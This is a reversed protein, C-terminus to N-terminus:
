RLESELTIKFPVLRGIDDFILGHRDDKSTFYLDASEIEPTFIAFFQMLDAVGFRFNKEDSTLSYCLGIQPNMLEEVTIILNSNEDFNKGLSVTLQLILQSFLM